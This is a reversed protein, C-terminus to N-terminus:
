WRKHSCIRRSGLTRCPKKNTVLCRYRDLIYGYSAIIDDEGIFSKSGTVGSAYSISQNGDTVSAVAKVGEGLAAQGGNTNAKVRLATIELYTPKLGEPITSINCYSKIFKETSDLYFSIFDASIDNNGTLIRIMEIDTM